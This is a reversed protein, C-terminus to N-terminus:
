FAVYKMYHLYDHAKDYAELGNLTERISTCINRCKSSESYNYKAAFINKKLRILSFAKSTETFSDKSKFGHNIRDRSKKLLVM